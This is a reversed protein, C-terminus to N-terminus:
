SLGLCRTSFCESLLPGYLWPQPRGLLWTDNHSGSWLSPLVGFFQHRQVTTSSFVVSLGKSLLSILGTLRLPFLGQISVPLILASASTGTNQDDSTFLGSMPFTGSTPLCLLYFSFLADRSSIADGIFHVHVQVFKLLHHTVPLGPTSCDM